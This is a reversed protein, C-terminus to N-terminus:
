LTLLELKLLNKGRKINQFSNNEIILHFATALINYVTYATPQTTAPHSLSLSDEVL